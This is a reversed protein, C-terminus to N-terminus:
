IGMEAALGRGSVGFSMAAQEADIEKIIALKLNQDVNTKKKLVKNAPMKKANLCKEYGLLIKQNCLPCENRTRLVDELCCKHM